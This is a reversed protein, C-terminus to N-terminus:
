ESSANDERPQVSALCNSVLTTRMSDFEKPTNVNRIVSPDDVKVYCVEEKPLLGIQRDLRSDPLYPSLSTLTSWFQRMLLVPHGGKGNYSPVCVKKTELPNRSLAKWVDGSPSPTDVPLVFSASFRHQHLYELGCQISSFQGLKPNSNLVVGIKLGYRDLWRGALDSESGLHERYSQFDYGFVVVVYKGGLRNFREIQYQFWPIGDVILLGKPTGMRSSKGGCLLILPYESFMRQM